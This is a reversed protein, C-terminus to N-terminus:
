KYVAMHDLPGRGAGLDLGAGILRTIYDKARAVSEEINFGEALNCAIASSLTCGTGHTNPNDIQEGRFWVLRDESPIFLLDNAGTELHGGKLLIAPIESNSGYVDNTKLDDVHNDNEKEVDARLSLKEAIIRVAKVMDEETKISIGSLVEGESLNPTIVASLPLLKGTLSETASDKM